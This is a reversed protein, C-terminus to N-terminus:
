TEEDNVKKLRIIGVKFQLIKYIYPLYFLFHFFFNVRAEQTKELSGLHKVSSSRVALM